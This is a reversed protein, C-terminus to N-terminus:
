WASAARSKEIAAIADYCKVISDGGIEVTFYEPDGYLRGKRRVVFRCPKALILYEAGGGMRGAAGQAAWGDAIVYGIEEPKLEDDSLDRCLQWTGRYGSQDQIFLAIVADEHSTIINKAIPVISYEMVRGIESGEPLPVIVSKRGRGEEGVMIEGSETLRIYPYIAGGTNISFCPITKM